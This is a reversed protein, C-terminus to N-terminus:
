GRQMDFLQRDQSVRSSQLRGGVCSRKAANGFQVRWRFIMSTAINHHRCVAAASVGPQGAQMVIALKVADTFSRRNSQRDRAPAAAAGDIL